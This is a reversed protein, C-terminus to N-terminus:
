HLLADLFVAGMGHFGSGGCNGHQLHLCAQCLAGVMLSILFIIYPIEHALDTGTILYYPLYMLIVPAVGFYVYIKGDYYAYDWRYSGIGLDKREARDYPNEASLLREDVDGDLYLTGNAFAHTLHTCPNDFIVRM